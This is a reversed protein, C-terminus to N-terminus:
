PNIKSLDNPLEEWTTHWHNEIEAKQRAEMPGVLNITVGKRGFRGARGIRHIYNAKDIPLEFNIVTEVQQVDIGRATLDTTIMVRSSGARFDDMKKKREEASMGGHLCELTFKADTMKTALWDAKSQKNCFIMAQNIKLQAYIDCLTEFKWEEQDLNVYYQRIGELPVQKQAILIRVPNNLIGDAFKIIEPDWTASFLCMRTTEPFGLRLLEMIQDQFKNALMQDAEDVIIKKISERRFIGRSCLDYIRGPTGVLFNVGNRIAQIDFQVSRAPNGGIAYHSKIGMYNGIGMAVTHVQEALEHTPVLVLVQPEKLAPDISCCAGIVFTGTKGTGSQAQGLVDRGEAIPMIGRKQIESPKEFGYSYIGRLLQEPILNMDDFNTYVKVEEGGFQQSAEMESSM